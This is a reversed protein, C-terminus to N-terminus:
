IITLHWCDAVTRRIKSRRNMAISKKIFVSTGSVVVGGVVVVIISCVVVVTGVVVVAVVIGGLLQVPTFILM